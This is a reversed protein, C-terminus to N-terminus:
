RTPRHIQPEDTPRNAYVVYDAARSRTVPANFVLYNLCAPLYRHKTEGIYV